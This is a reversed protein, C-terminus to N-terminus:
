ARPPAAAHLQMLPSKLHATDYRLGGIGLGTALPLRLRATFRSKHLALPLPATRTM